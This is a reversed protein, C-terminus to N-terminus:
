LGWTAALISVFAFLVSMAAVVIGSVILFRGIKMVAGLPNSLGTLSIVLVLNVRYKSRAITKSQQM